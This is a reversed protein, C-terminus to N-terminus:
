ERALTELRKSIYDFVARLVRSNDYERIIRMIKKQDRGLERAFRSINPIARTLEDVISVTASLSTRSLPNLDISIVVKGMRALAQARDGDELPVLVVDASYIGDVHCKGRNHHLGELAADPGEALIERAGHRQLHAKIASAREESWHFLNVEIRAGTVSSLEVIGEPCLAATNGNVSIVPMRANLMFAAAARESISAPEITVEGLLYDFMEGRGHAILGEPVVIGDKFGSILRSRKMLSEYRPHDPPLTNSGAPNMLM